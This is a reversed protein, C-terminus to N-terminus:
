AYNSASGEGDDTDKRRRRRLWPLLWLWSALGAVAAVIAGVMWPSVAQASPPGAAQPSDPPTPGLDVAGLSDDPRQGPGGEPGPAQQPEPEAGPAPQEATPPQPQQPPVAGDGADDPRGDSDGSPTHARTTLDQSADPHTVGVWTMSLSASLGSTDLRADRGLEVEVKVHTDQNADLRLDTATAQAGTTVEGLLIEQAGPPCSDQIWPQSCSHAAITIGAAKDLLEGEAAVLATLEADVDGVNTLTMTQSRPVGPVMNEFVLTDPDAVIQPGDYMSAVPLALMLALLAATM